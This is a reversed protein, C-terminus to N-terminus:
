EDYVAEYIVLYTAGRSAPRALEWADLLVSLGRFPTSTYACRWPPGLHWSRLNADVDTANPLVVCREPPLGFTSLYRERQWYSVFVFCSVSEVLAKDSCWQVWEQNADHHIWVVRPRDDDGDRGPHNVQLNIRELEGGLRDKLGVVM